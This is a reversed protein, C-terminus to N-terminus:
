LVGNGFLFGTGRLIRKGFEQRLPASPVSFIIQACVFLFILKALLFLYFLYFCMYVWSIFGCFAFCYRDLISQALFFLETLSLKRRTAFGWLLFGLVAFDVREFGLVAFIM